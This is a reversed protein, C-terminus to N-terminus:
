ATIPKGAVADDIPQALKSGIILESPSIKSNYIMNSRVAFATAHLFLDWNTGNEDVQKQVCRKLQKVFSESMGDGQPHLRSSKSKDVGLIKSLEIMVSGHVNRAGDSHM